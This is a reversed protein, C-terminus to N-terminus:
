LENGQKILINIESVLESLFDRASYPKSDGYFLAILFPKTVYNPSFVKGMISWFGKKSKNFIDMGDVHILLKIDTENYVNSDIISSLNYEIGFYKFKGLTGDACKMITSEDSLNSTGLLTKCSKPLSIYGESRLVMLLEDISKQTVTRISRLVWNKIKQEIHGNILSSTDFDTADPVYDDSLSEEPTNLGSSNGFNEEDYEFNSIEGFEGLEETKYCPVIVEDIGIEQFDDDDSM